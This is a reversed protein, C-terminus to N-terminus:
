QASLRASGTQPTIQCAFFHTSCDVTTCQPTHAILAMYAYLEYAGDLMKQITPHEFLKQKRIYGYLNVNDVM